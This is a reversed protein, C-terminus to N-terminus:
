GCSGTVSMRTRARIVSGAGPARGEGGPVDVTRPFAQDPVPGTVFTSRLRVPSPSHRAAFRLGPLGTDIAPSTTRTAPSWLRVACLHACARGVGGAVNLWIDWGPIPEAVSVVRDLHGVDVHASAPLRSRRASTTLPPGPRRQHIEVPADKIAGGASALSVSARGRLPPRRSASRRQQDRMAAGDVHAAFRESLQASHDDGGWPRSCRGGVV